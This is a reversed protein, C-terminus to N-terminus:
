GALFVMTRVTGFVDLVEVGFFDRADLTEWQSTLSQECTRTRREPRPGAPL